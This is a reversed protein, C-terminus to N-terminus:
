RVVSFFYKNPQLIYPTNRIENFVVQKPQLTGEYDNNTIDLDVYIHVPDADIPIPNIKQQLTM